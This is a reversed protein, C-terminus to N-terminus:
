LVSKQLLSQAKEPFEHALVYGIPVKTSKKYFYREIWKLQGNESIFTGDAFDKYKILYKVSNDDNVVLAVTEKESINGIWDDFNTWHDHLYKYLCSPEFDRCIQQNFQGCNYSEFFLKMFKYKKHDLRRCTSEVNDM